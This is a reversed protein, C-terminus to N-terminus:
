YDDAEGSGDPSSEDDQCGTNEYWDADPACRCLTPPM